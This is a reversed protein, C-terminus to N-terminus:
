YLVFMYVQLESSTDRELVGGVKAPPLYRALQCVTVVFVFLLFSCRFCVAFIFLSFLCRFCVAFCVGFVFLSFLCLMRM